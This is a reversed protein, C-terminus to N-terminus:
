FETQGGLEVVRELSRVRYALRSPAGEGGAVGMEALDGFRQAAHV